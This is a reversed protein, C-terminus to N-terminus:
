GPGGERPPTRNGAGRGQSEAEQPGCIWHAGLLGVPLDGARASPAERRPSPHSGAPQPLGAFPQRRRVTTRPSRRGQKGGASRSERTHPGVLSNPNRRARVHPPPTPPPHLRTHTHPPSPPTRHPPPTPAHLPRCSTRPGGQKEQLVRVCFHALLKPPLVQLRENSARTTASIAKQVECDERGGSAAHSRCTQCRLKM